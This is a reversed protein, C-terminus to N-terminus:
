LHFCSLLQVLCSKVRRRPGSLCMKTKGNTWGKSARFTDPLYLWLALLSITFVSVCEYVRPEAPTYNLTYTLNSWSCGLSKHPLPLSVTVIGEDVSQADSCLNLIIGCCWLGWLSASWIHRADGGVQTRSFIVSYMQGWESSPRQILTSFSDRFRVSLHHWLSQSSSVFVSLPLSIFPQRQVRPHRLFMSLTGCSKNKEM